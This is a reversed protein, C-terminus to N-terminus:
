YAGVATKRVLEPSWSVRRYNHYLSILNGREDYMAEEPYYCAVKFPSNWAPDCEVGVIETELLQEACEGEVCAPDRWGNATFDALYDEMNKYDEDTMDDKIDAYPDVAAGFTNVPASPMIPVLTPVQTPVLTPVQTPVQTHVETPVQTHVQTPVKTPVLAPFNEKTMDPSPSRPRKTDLGAIAPPAKRVKKWANQLQPAVNAVRQLTQAPPARHTTPEDVKTEKQQTRKWANFKRVAQVLAARAQKCESETGSWTVTLKGESDLEKLNIVFTAGTERRIQRFKRLPQGHTRKGFADPDFTFTISVM